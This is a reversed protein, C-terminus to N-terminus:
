EKALVQERQGRAQMARVRDVGVGEGDRSGVEAQSGRSILEM